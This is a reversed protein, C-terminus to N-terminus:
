PISVTVERGGLGHVNDHARVKVWTIPKPIKVGSLSRTFPQENVHPHFLVRKGLVSGDPGIVEWGNAYHDWGTDAHRVTVDFAYTRDGKDHVEVKLVDAKGAFLNGSLLLCGGLLLSKILGPRDMRYDSGM